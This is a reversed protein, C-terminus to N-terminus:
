SKCCKENSESHLRVFRNWFHSCDFMSRCICGVKRCSGGSWFHNYSSCQLILQLGLTSISSVYMGTANSVLFQCIQHSARDHFSPEAPCREDAVVGGSVHGNDLKGNDVEVDEDSEEPEVSGGCRAIGDVGACFLNDYQNANYSIHYEPSGDSSDSDPSPSPTARAIENELRLIQM